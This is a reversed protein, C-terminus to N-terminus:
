AGKGIINQHAAVALCIAECADESTDTIGFRECVYDISQQKLEPRKVSAGQRFGLIKRWETPLYSAVPTGKIYALGILMGQLQSLMLMTKPSAQSQVAEVVLMDPRCEDIVAAIDLFMNKIRAATDKKSKSHDIIGYKIPTGDRLLCYGTINSAQDLGLITTNTM